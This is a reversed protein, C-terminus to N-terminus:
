FKFEKIIPKNNPEFKPKLKNKVDKQHQIYKQTMNQSRMFIHKIKTM